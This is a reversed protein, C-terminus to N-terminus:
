LEVQGESRVHRSPLAAELWDFRATAEHFGTDLDSRSFERLWLLAGIEVANNYDDITWASGWDHVGTPAAFFEAIEPRTLHCGDALRWAVCEGIAFAPPVTRSTERDPFLDSQFM